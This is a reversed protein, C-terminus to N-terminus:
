EKLLNLPIQQFPLVFVHNTQNYIRNFPLVNNQIQVNGFQKHMQIPWVSFLKNM